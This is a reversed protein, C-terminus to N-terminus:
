NQDHTLRGIHKGWFSKEETRLITDTRRIDKSEKVALFSEDSRLLRPHGVIDEAWNKVILSLILM